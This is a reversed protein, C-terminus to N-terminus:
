KQPGNFGNEEQFAAIKDIVGLLVDFGTGVTEASFRDPMDHWTHYYYTLIPNQAAFTVSKIGAKTMPTSDCGGVPNHIAGNTKSVIELEDFIDKFMKELDKDFRCGQWDDKIVVEFYDEDAVSDINLNWCNNLMGDNKHEETFAMSGRLGAEESGCYVNMIRCRPPIKEPNEKFYKMVEYSLAIGSANDMAGRSANEPNPDAWMIVFFCGICCIIPLFLFIKDLVNYVDAFPSTYGYQAGYQVIVAWKAQFVMLATYYVAQFISYFAMVFFCIAGFGVKGYTSIIGLVPKDRYKYAHESHKWCWSTDTHGSLAITYDYEGDEPVLEGITNRSVQQKFFMDFWRKYLFVSFILWVITVVSLGCMAFWLYPIARAFYSAVCLIVGAWGAYPIGGISARPYVAFEESVPKVGIERLKDAMYDHFKKENESGPLRSGIECAAHNIIDYAEEAYKRSEEKM